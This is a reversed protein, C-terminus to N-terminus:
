ENIVGEMTPIRAGQKNFVHVTGQKPYQIKFHNFHIHKDEAIELHVEFKDKRLASLLFARLNIAVRVHMYRLYEAYEQRLFEDQMALDLQEFMEEYLNFDEYQVKYKGKASLVTFDRMQIKDLLKVLHTKEYMYDCAQYALKVNEHIEESVTLHAKQDKLLKAMKKVEEENLSKAFEELSMDRYNM